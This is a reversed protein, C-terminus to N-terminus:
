VCFLLSNVTTHLFTYFFQDTHLLIVKPSTPTDSGHGEQGEPEM